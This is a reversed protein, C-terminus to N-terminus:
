NITTFGRYFEQFDSGKLGCKLDFAKLHFDSPKKTSKYKFNITQRTVRVM